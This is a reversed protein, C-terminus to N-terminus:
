HISDVGEPSERASESRERARKTYATSGKPNNALVEAASRRESSVYVNEYNGVWESGNWSAFFSGLFRGFHGFTSFLEKKPNRPVFQYRFIYKWFFKIKTIKSRNEGMERGFATALPDTFVWYKWTSTHICQWHAWIHNVFVKVSMHGWLLPRIEFISGNKM